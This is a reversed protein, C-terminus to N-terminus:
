IMKMAKLTYTEKRQWYRSYEENECTDVLLYKGPISLEM